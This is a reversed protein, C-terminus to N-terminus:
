RVFPSLLRSLWRAVPVIAVASLDLVKAVSDIAARISRAKPSVPAAIDYPPQWESAPRLEDINTLALVIPPV